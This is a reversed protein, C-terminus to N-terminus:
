RLQKLTHICMKEWLIICDYFPDIVMCNQVTVNETKEGTLFLDYALICWFHHCVRVILSWLDLVFCFCM